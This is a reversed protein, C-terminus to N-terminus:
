ELFYISLCSFILVNLSRLCPSRLSATCDELMNLILCPLTLFNSIGPPEFWGCKLKEWLRVYHPPNEQIFIWLVHFRSFLSINLYSNNQKVTSIELFFRYLFFVPGVYGMLFWNDQGVSIVHYHSQSHGSVCKCISCLGFGAAKERDITKQRSSVQFRNWAWFGCMSLTPQVHLEALSQWGSDGGRRSNWNLRTKM